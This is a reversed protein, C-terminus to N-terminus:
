DELGLLYDTSVGFFKSLAILSDIGAISKKNEWRSIAMGSVGIIKGLEHVTLKKELRLERLREAFNNM